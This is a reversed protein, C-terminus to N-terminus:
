SAMGRKHKDKKGTKYQRVSYQNKHKILSGPWPNQVLKDNDQQAIFNCIGAQCHLINSELASKLIEQIVHLEGPTQVSISDTFVEQM